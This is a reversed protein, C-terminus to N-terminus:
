ASWAPVPPSRASRGRWAAATPDPRHWRSLWHRASPVRRSARAPSRCGRATRRPAPWEPGAIVPQNRRAGRRPRQLPRGAPAVAGVKLRRLLVRMWRAGSAQRCRPAFRCIVTSSQRSRNEGSVASCRGMMGGASCTVAALQGFSSMMVMSWSAKWPRVTLRSPVAPATSASLKMTVSSIGVPAGCRAWNAATPPPPDPM